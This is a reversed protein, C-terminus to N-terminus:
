NSSDSFPIKYYKMIEFILNMSDIINLFVISRYMERKASNFGLAHILRIQKFITSRDSERDLFPLKVETKMKKEDEKITKNIRKN